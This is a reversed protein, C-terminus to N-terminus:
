SIVIEYTEGFFELNEFIAHLSKLENIRKHSKITDFEM